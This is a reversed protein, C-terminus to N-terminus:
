GGTVFLFVIGSFFLCFGIISFRLVEKPRPSNPLVQKQVQRFRIRTAPMWFLQEFKEGPPLRDNVEFQLEMYHYAGIFFAIVGLAM